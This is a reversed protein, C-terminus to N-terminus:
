GSSLIWGLVLGKIRQYEEKTYQMNAICYQKGSIGTCFMSDQMDYCDHLMFSSQIKSSWSIQFSNSCQASDELRICFSSEGCRNCAALFECNGMGDSFLIHNSQRIDTSRFVDSCEIVGDSQAINEANLYRETARLDVQGWAQIVDKLENLAIAPRMGENTEFQKSLADQTIFQADRASRTWTNIGRIDTVQRPITIDFAFKRAFEELTFPNKVDFIQEVIKDLTEQAKEPTM